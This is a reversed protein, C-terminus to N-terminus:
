EATLARVNSCGPGTKTMPNRINWACRRLCGPSLSQWTEHEDKMAKYIMDESRPQTINIKKERAGFSASRQADAAAPLWLPLPSQLYDAVRRPAALLLHTVTQV